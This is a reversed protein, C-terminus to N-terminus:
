SQSQLLEEIEAFQVVRAERAAMELGCALLHNGRVQEHSIPVDQEGRVCHCFCELERLYAERYRTPFSYDVPPRQFGLVNASRLSTQHYNDAQLMGDSGFAELRQDYGYVSKRNIDISAVIGDPFQLTAVVNDFDDLDGIFPIFSSGFSAVRIPTAGVIQCVIDLDHVLCDHFIGGSIRIYAPEPVPNDRSVSRVFQLQGVNGNRVGQVLAAFAPDFRRQFGVFLPTSTAESKAFCNDIQKLHRGLPKETLVPKGADLFHMVYEHHLDTPTAVIVADIDADAIESAQHVAVCGEAEAIRASKTADIDFVHTVTALDTMRLSQLHFKGARGLGLLGIKIPDKSM